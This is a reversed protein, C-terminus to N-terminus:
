LSPRLSFWWPSAAFNRSYEALKENVSAFDYSLIKFVRKQADNCPLLPPLGFVAGAFLAFNQPPNQKIASFFFIAKAQFIKIPIAAPITTPRKKICSDPNKVGAVIVVHILGKPVRNM